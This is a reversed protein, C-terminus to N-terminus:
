QSRHVLGIVQIRASNTVVFVVMAVPDGLIKHTQVSEADAAQSYSKIVRM